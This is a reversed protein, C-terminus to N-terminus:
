EPYQRRAVQPKPQRMRRMSVCRAMIYWFVRGQSTWAERGFKADLRRRLILWCVIVDLIMILTLAYLGLMLWLMLQRMSQGFLGLILVTFAVPIFFEGVSFRADVYDRVYRKVPGKDRAPLYREDGTEMARRQREWAEDRRARAERKAAKRDTPVVPHLRKAQADRRKPTPRGKGGAKSPTTEPEPAPAENKKFLKVPEPYRSM